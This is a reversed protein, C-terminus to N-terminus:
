NPADSVIRFFLSRRTGCTRCRLRAERLRQAGPTVIAAHEVVEHLGGCRPCKVSSAHAEVVSASPVDLPRESTGGPEWTFLRVREQALKEEARELARRATRAGM